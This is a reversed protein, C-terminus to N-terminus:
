ANNERDLVRSPGLSIGFRALDAYPRIGAVVDSAIKTKANITVSAYLVNELNYECHTFAHRADDNELAIDEFIPYIDAVHIPQRTQSTLRFQGKSSAAHKETTLIEVSTLYSQIRDIESEDDSYFFYRVVFPTEIKYVSALVRQFVIYQRDIDDPYICDFYNTWDLDTVADAVLFEFESFADIAQYCEDNLTDSNSYFYFERYGNTTVRGVFVFQGSDYLAPVRQDELEWLRDREQQIPFGERSPQNLCARIVHFFPFQSTDVDHAVSLDIWTSAPHNEIRCKYHASDRLKWIQRSRNM